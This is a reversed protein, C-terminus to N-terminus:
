CGWILRLCIEYGFIDSSRQTHPFALAHALQFLQYNVKPIIKNRSSWRWISSLTFSTSLSLLLTIGSSLLRTSPPLSFSLSLSLAITLDSKQELYYIIAKRQVQYLTTHHQACRQKDLPFKNLEYRRGVSKYRGEAALM